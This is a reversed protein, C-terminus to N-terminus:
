RLLLAGFQPLSKLFQGFGLLRTARHMRLCGIAVIIALFQQLQVIRDGTQSPYGRFGYGHGLVHHLQRSSQSLKLPLFHSSISDLLLMCNSHRNFAVSEEVKCVCELFDDNFPTLDQANETIQIGLYVTRVLGNWCKWTKMNMHLKVLEYIGLVVM